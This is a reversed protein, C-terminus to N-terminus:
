KREDPWEQELFEEDPCGARVDYIKFAKVSM